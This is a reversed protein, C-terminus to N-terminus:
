TIKSLNRENTARGDDSKAFEESNLSPRTSCSGCGYQSSQGFVQLCDGYPAGRRRLPRSCFYEFLGHFM